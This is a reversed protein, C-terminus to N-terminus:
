LPWNITSGIDVDVSSSSSAGEPPCVVRLLLIQQASQPECMSGGAGFAFEVAEGLGRPVGGREATCWPEQDELMNLFERTWVMEVTWVLGVLRGCDGEAGGNASGVCTYMKRRSM